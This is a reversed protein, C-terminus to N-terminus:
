EARVKNDTLTVCVGDVQGSNTLREITALRALMDCNAYPVTKRPRTRLAMAQPYSITVVLTMGAARRPDRRFGRLQALKVGAYDPVWVCQVHLSPTLLLVYLSSGESNLAFGSSPILFLPLFLFLFRYVHLTPVAGLGM